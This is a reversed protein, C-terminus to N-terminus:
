KNVIKKSFIHKSLESTLYQVQKVGSVSVTKKLLYRKEVLRELIVRNQQRTIAKVNAKKLETILEISSSTVKGLRETIKFYVREVSTLREIFHKDLFYKVLDPANIEKGDDGYYIFGESCLRMLQKPNGNALELIVKMSEKDFPIRSKGSISYFSVRKTIIELAKDELLPEILIVDSFTSSVTAEEVNRIFAQKFNEYFQLTGVFIFHSDRTHLIAKIANLLKEEEEFDCKDTEDISVIIKTKTEKKLLALFQLVERTLTVKSYPKLSKEIQDSVGEKLEGGVESGFFSLLSAKISARISAESTNGKTVKEDYLLNAKLRMVEKKLTESLNGDLQDCIDTLIKKLYDEESYNGSTRVVLAINGRKRMESLSKNLVTSKGSGRKGSIGYVVGGNSSDLGNVLQRLEMSRNVFLREIEEKSSLEKISFPNESFGWKDEIWGL